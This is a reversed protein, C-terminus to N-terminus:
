KGIPYTKVMSSLSNSSFNGQEKVPRFFPNACIQEKSIHRFYTFTSFFYYPLSPLHWMRMGILLSHLYNPLHQM